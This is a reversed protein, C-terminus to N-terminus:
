RRALEDEQRQIREFHKWGEEFNSGGAQMLANHLQRKQSTTAAAKPVYGREVSARYVAFSLPINQRAASQALAQISNHLMATKLEVPSRFGNHQAFAWAHQSNDPYAANLEAVRSNLVHTAAEDYDPLEERGHRDAERIHSEWEKNAAHNELRSSRADFHALPDEMQDPMGDYQEQPQRAPEHQQPQEQPQGHVDSDYVEAQPPPDDFEVGEKELYAKMSAEDTYNENMTM